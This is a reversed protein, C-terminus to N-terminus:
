SPMEVICFWETMGPNMSADPFECQPSWTSTAIKASNKRMITCNIRNTGDLSITSDIYKSILTAVIMLDDAKGYWVLSKRNAAGWRLDFWVWQEAGEVVICQQENEHGNSSSGVSSVICRAFSSVGLLHRSPSKEFRPPLGIIKEIRRLWEHMLLKKGNGTGVYYELAQRSGRDSWSGLAHEFAELDGHWWLSAITVLFTREFIATAGAIFVCLAGLISLLVKRDSIRM